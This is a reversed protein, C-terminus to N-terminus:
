FFDPSVEADSQEYFVMYAQQSGVHEWSVLQPQLADDCLYWQDNGGRAYTVYHGRSGWVRNNLCHHVVVSKLTYSFPVHEVLRQGFQVFTEDKTWIGLTPDLKWRDILLALVRPWRKVHWSKHRTLLGRCGECGDKTDHDQVLEEEFLDGLARAVSCHDEGVQLSLHNFMGFKHSVRGCRKCVLSQLGLGGLCYWQPLQYRAAINVHPTISLLKKRDMEDCASMLQLFAQHACQQRGNAMAQSWVARHTVTLPPFNFHAGAEALRAFDRHMCCLPCSEERPWHCLPKHEFVWAQIAPLASLARLLSNAYCTNGLNECGASHNDLYPPAALTYGLLSWSESPVPTSVLEKSLYEIKPASKKPAPPPKDMAACAPNLCEDSGGFLTSGCTKCEEIDPL